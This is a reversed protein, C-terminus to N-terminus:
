KANYIYTKLEEPTEVRTQEFTEPDEIYYEPTDTYLTVVVWYQKEGEVHCYTLEAVEVTINQNTLTGSLWKGTKEDQVDLMGEALRHEYGLATLVATIEDLTDGVTGEAVPLFVGEFLEYGPTHGASIPEYPYRSNLSQPEYCFTLAEAISELDAREMQRQGTWNHLSVTAFFSGSDAALLAHEESLALMLETGEANTYTWQDYDDTDWVNIYVGDFSTKMVCRYQAWLPDTWTSNKLTFDVYSLSFSGDLFWYGESEHVEVQEPHVFISNVGVVDLLDTMSDEFHIAGLPELGYKHCIEEVKSVMEDTYCHYSEFPVPVTYGTENAKRQLSGDPDYSELFEQWEQAALYNKSGSIGQLSVYDTTQEQGFRGLVLSQLDFVIAAFGVMAVLLAIVAAILIVRKIGSRTNIVHKGSRYEQAEMVYSERVQGIVDLLANANM